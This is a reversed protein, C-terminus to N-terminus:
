PSTLSHSVRGIKVYVDDGAYSTLIVQEIPDFKGDIGASHLFLDSGSGTYIIRNGFSDSFAESINKDLYPGKWQQQYLKEDCRHTEILYNGPYNHTYFVNRSGDSGIISNNTREVSALDFVFGEFPFFGLDVSYCIFATKLDSMKAKTSSILGSNTSGGLDIPGIIAVAFILAAILVVVGAVALSSDDKERSM